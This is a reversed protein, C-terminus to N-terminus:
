GTIPCEDTITAIDAQQLFQHCGAEWHYSFFAVIGIIHGPPIAPQPMILEDCSVNLCFAHKHHLICIDWLSFIVFEWVSLEVIPPTREVIEKQHYVWKLPFPLQQCQETIIGICIPGAPM